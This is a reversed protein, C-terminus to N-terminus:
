SPPSGTVPVGATQASGSLDNYTISVSWGTAAPTDSCTLPIGKVPPKTGAANDGGCRSTTPGVIAYKWGSCSALKSPDGAGVDVTPAAATGSWSATLNAAGVDCVPPTYTPAAGGSIGTVIFPGKSAGLFSFSVSVKWADGSAGNKDVCSQTVQVDQPLSGAGSLSGCSTGDRDEVSVSWNSALAITPDGGTYAVSVQSQGGSSGHWSASFDGNGPDTLTPQTITVGTTAGGSTGAFLPPNPNGHQALHVVVQCDGHFSLRDIDNTTM